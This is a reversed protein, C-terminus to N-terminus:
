RAMLKRAKEVERVPFKCTKNVCVYITTEGEVKKYQHLPLKEDSGGSFIVDPTFQSQMEELIDRAKDGMIVVEFPSYVQQLLNQCWNSLYSPQRSNLILNLVKNMMVESMRLWEKHDFLTGLIFLNHVMMSNYSPIVNDYVEIRTAVLPPDNINTLRFLNEDEDYFHEISYELLGKSIELWEHDLTVEYLHVFAQIVAAYDELFANISSTGRTFNRDMRNDEKILEKQIFRAAQLAAELYESHDTFKYAEVLGRVALGNWSALIKNDLAPKTRKERELFLKKNADNIIKDLTTHDELQFSDIILEPLTSIHLINKGEWNGEPLVSYFAAVVPYDNMLISQLEKVTWVYFLGEEGDSDADYSSFFGGSQDTWERIIFQATKHVVDAWEPKKFLGYAQAYLSLLQANDYLMKEFHPIKWYPDVSYRAFGGGIHDFIGGAAMRDLSVELADKVKLDQNHYYYKLFYELINPMPFKPAGKNGGYQFDFHQLMRFTISDLHEKDIFSKEQPPDIRGYQNIGQTLREATRLLRDPENSKIQIFHELVGKWHDKPFYTGAWVPRGDSLAFANLPWGCGGGSALQCATMYVDDVDPREERDVKISIFHKNMIEAVEHDEFSEREMVHCWHCAAYGISIIIMKDEQSAKKLAEEGWPYWDVPNYVHQILYPSTENMLQNAKRNINHSM